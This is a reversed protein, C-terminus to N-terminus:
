PLWRYCMSLGLMMSSPPSTVRRPVKFGLNNYTRPTYSSPHARLYYARINEGARLRDMDFVQSAAHCSTYQPIHSFRRGTQARLTHWRTLGLHLCTSLAAGIGSGTCVHIGRRYLSSTNSIGAFQLLSRYRQM